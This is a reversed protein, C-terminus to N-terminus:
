ANTFMCRELYDCLVHTTFTHLEQIRPTDKSPIIISIDCLEKLKGGDKGLFGVTSIGLKKAIEVAQILNQSNGSTSIPIFVDGKKGLGELQRAFVAEYGYDNSICSVVSPDTCLSLAPLAARDFMFRGVMEGAFHQADAASGGNGALLVKGGSKFAKVLMRGVEEVNETYSGDLIEDVLEKKQLLMERIKQKM